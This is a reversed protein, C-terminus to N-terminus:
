SVTEDRSHYQPGPRQATFAGVQESLIHLTWINRETDHIPEPGRYCCGGSAGRCPRRAIRPRALRGRGRSARAGTRSRGAGVLARRWPPPNQPAASSLSASRSPRGAGGLARPSSAVPLDEAVSTVVGNGRRISHLRVASHRDGTCSGRPMLRPQVHSTRPRRLARSGGTCLRSRRRTIGENKTGRDGGSVGELTRKPTASTPGAPHPFDVAYWRRALVQVRSLSSSSARTLSGSTDRGPGQKTRGTCGKIGRADQGRRGRERLQRTPTRSAVRLVQFRARHRLDSSGGIAPQSCLLTGKTPHRRWARRRRRRPVVCLREDVPVLPPPPPMGFQYRGLPWTHTRRWGKVTSTPRPPVRSGRVGRLGILHAVPFSGRSHWRNQSTEANKNRTRVSEVGRRHHGAKRTVTAEEMATFTSTWAKFGLAMLTSSNYPWQLGEVMSHFSPTAASKIRRAAASVLTRWRQTEERVRSM